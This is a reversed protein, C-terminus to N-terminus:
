QVGSEGGVSANTFNEVAETARNLRPPNVALEQLMAAIASSIELQHNVDTLIAEDEANTLCGIEILVAPNSLAMFLPNDIAHVGRSPMGTKEELHAILSEAILRSAMTSGVQRSRISSLRSRQQPPASRPYFAALGRTRNSFAGGLHLSIVLDAQSSQAMGARQKTTYNFDRDRLLQVNLNEVGTLLDKVQQAILLTIEKEL